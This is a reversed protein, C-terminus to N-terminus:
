SKFKNAILIPLRIIMGFMLRVHLRILVLNDRLYHFHSRGDEIYQVKTDIFKLATNCWVAKVLVETDFDMRAGLYHHDALYEMQDLPYVRFGCTVKRGYVRAKPANSDFVPRGCVITDPLERSADIFGFVDDSNHQGDADIQIIHTMGLTRAYMAATMVAAGKGRNRSHEILTIESYGSVLETLRVLEEENSGDDVVICPLHLSLLQPLFAALEHV